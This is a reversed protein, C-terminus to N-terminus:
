MKTVKTLEQEGFAGFTSGLFLWFPMLFRDWFSAFILTSFLGFILFIDHSQLPCWSCIMFYLPFIVSFGNRSSWFWAETNAGHVNVCILPYCFFSCIWVFWLVLALVSGPIASVGNVFWWVFLRFFCRFGPTSKRFSFPFGFIDGWLWSKAKNTKNSSAPSGQFSSLQVLLGFLRSLRSIMSFQSFGSLWWSGRSFGLSRSGHTGLAGFNQFNQFNLVRVM